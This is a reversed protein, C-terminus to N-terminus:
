HTMDSQWRENPLQRLCGSRVAPVNTPESVMFSGRCLVRWITAASPFDPHSLGLHYHITQM